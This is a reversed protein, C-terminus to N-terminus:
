EGRRFKDKRIKNMKNLFYAKGVFVFLAIIIMLILEPSVDASFGTLSVIEKLNNFIIDIHLLVTIVFVYIATQVTEFHRGKFYRKFMVSFSASGNFKKEKMEKKHYLEFDYWLALFQFLIGIGQFQIQLILWEM